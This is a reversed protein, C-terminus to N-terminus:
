LPSPPYLTSVGAQFASNENMSDTVVTFRGSHWKCSYMHIDMAAFSASVPDGHYLRDILSLFEEKPPLEAIFLNKTQESVAIVRVEGSPDSSFDFDPM